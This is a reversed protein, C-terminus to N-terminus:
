DLIEQKKDNTETIQEEPKYNLKEQIINVRTILHTLPHVHKLNEYAHWKFFELLDINTIEGLGAMFKAMGNFSKDLGNIRMKIWAGNFSLDRHNYKAVALYDVLSSLSDFGSNFYQKVTVKQKEPSQKSKWLQLDTNFGILTRSDDSEYIPQKKNVLIRASTHHKIGRGGAPEYNITPNGFGGIIDNVQSVLLFCSNTKSLEGSVVRLFSRLLIAKDSYVKSIEGKTVKDIEARTASASITDWVILLPFKTDKVSNKEITRMIISTGDEFSTFKPRLVKSVDVGLERARETDFSSESELLLVVGGVKQFEAMGQYSLTTKGASEEGFLEYIKGLFYGGALIVDLAAVGTSVSTSSNLDGDENEEKLDIKNAKFHSVLNDFNSM